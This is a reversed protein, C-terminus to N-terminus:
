PAVIRRLAAALEEPRQSGFLVKRGDRLGLQVGRNGSVNYAKGHRGYRIGWGGYELVPRYTRAEVEAIEGAEIRHFRVHFPYYRYRLGDRRVEVVLRTSLFLAPLGGGLLLGALFAPWVRPGGEGTPEGASVERLASYVAVGSLLITLALAWRRPFRQEERFLVEGTGGDADMVSPIM